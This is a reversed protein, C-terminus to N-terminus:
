PKSSKSIVSAKTMARGSKVLKKTSLSIKASRAKLRTSKLSVAKKIQNLTVVKTKLPYIVGGTSGGSTDTSSTSQAAETAVAAVSPADASVSGSPDASLIAGNSDSAVSGDTGKLSVGSDSVTVTAGTDTTVPQGNIGLNTTVDPTTTIVDSTVQGNSAQNLDSVSVTPEISSIEAVSIHADSVAETPNNAQIDNMQNQVDVNNNEIQTQLNNVQSNFDNQNIQNGDMQEQLSLSKEELALNTRLADEIVQDDTVISNGILPISNVFKEVGFGFNSPPTLDAVTNDTQSAIFHFSFATLLFVLLLLGSKM